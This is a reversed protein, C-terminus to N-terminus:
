KPAIPESKKKRTKRGILAMFNTPPLLLPKFDTRMTLNSVIERVFPFLMAPAQIDSFEELVVSDNDGTISFYGAVSLSIKMPSPEVGKINIETNLILKLERKEPSFEKSPKIGIKVSLPADGFSYLPDIEFNVKELIVKEFSIGQHEHKKM